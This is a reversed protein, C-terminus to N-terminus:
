RARAPTSFWGRRSASGWDSATTRAARICGRSSACDISGTPSTHELLVVAGVKKGDSGVAADAV